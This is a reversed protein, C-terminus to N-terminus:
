FHKANSKKPESRDSFVFATFSFIETGPKQWADRPLGAKLSAEELFTKRDWHQEVPVQPLLVGDQTGRRIVLGHTGVKISTPDSVRVAPSLVSIEYNLYPLEDPRVPPFRPDEVAAFGAVDRTALYLPYRASMYGICGRLEGNKTLTVFVGRQEKLDDSAPPPPEYTKRDRVMSEVSQRAINLLARRDTESVAFQDTQTNGAQKLFALASYGVVRSKDGTVDGSNAYKLLQAPRSGLQQAAIMVAVVPAGGCAEWEGSNLKKSVALPDNQLVGTLFAQDKKVAEDYNHFHSLDSSAVLLTDNNDKLLKALALGLQKSAEYSQDGMVIPVLEFNGLTRQLFPLQVEVSHEPQGRVSHGMDSLKMSSGMKSLKRAFDRDVPIRGLPTVYAQGDYISTYGFATVHSPAVVIVRKFKKGKLLAYAAGAVSGSYSYGAHPAVLAVLEGDTKSPPASALARDVSAALTARDAPYFSGAVGAEREKTQQGSCALSTLLISIIAVSRVSVITM